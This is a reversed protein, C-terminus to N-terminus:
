KIRVFQPGDNVLITEITSDDFLLLAADVAENFTKYIGKEILDGGFINESKLQILLRIM